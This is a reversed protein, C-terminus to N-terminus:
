LLSQLDNRISSAVFAITEGDTAKSTGPCLRVESFDLCGCALSLHQYCVVLVTLAGLSTKQLAALVARFMTCCSQNHIFLNTQFCHCFVWMGATNVSVRSSDGDSQFQFFTFGFFSISGTASNTTIFYHIFGTICYILLSSSM